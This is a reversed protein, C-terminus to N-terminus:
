LLCQRSVRLGTYLLFFIGRTSKVSTTFFGATHQGWQLGHRLRTHYHSGYAHSSLLYKDTDIGRGALQLTLLYEAEIDRSDTVNEGTLLLSKRREFQELTRHYSSSTWM